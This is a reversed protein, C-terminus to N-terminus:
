YMDIAVSSYVSVEAEHNLINIDTCDRRLMMAFAIRATWIASASPQISDYAMHIVKSSLRSFYDLM